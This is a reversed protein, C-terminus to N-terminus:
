RPSVPVVTTLVGFGEDRAALLINWAFPYVSVGSVVGVRDLEQDLAASVSLDLCIVLVVQAAHLPAVFASADIASIAPTEVSCM